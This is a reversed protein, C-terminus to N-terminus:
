SKPHARVLPPHPGSFHSSFWRCTTTREASSAKRTAGSGFEIASAREPGSEGTLEVGGVHGCHHSTVKTSNVALHVAPTRVVPTRM